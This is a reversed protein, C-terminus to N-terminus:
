QGNPSSLVSPFGYFSGNYSQRTYRIVSVAQSKTFTAPTTFPTIKIKMSLISASQAM